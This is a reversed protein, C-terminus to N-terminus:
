FSHFMWHATWLLTMAHLMQDAGIVVFFYHVKKETWLRSTVRSTNWDVIFHIAGNLLAYRWGFILSFPIMYVLVHYGLWYNSKSKNVAMQDTQLVFDSFWHLVLLKLIVNM